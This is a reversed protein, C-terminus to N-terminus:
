NLAVFCADLMAIEHPYSPRSFHLPDPFKVAHGM